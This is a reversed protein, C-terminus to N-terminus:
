NRKKREVIYNEPQEREKTANLGRRIFVNTSRKSHLCAPVSGSIPEDHMLKKLEFETLHVEVFDEEEDHEYIFKM